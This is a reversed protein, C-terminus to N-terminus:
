YFWPNSPHDLSHDIGNQQGLSGSSALMTEAVTVNADLFAIEAQAKALQSQAIHIQQHLLSIIGVCGYVPDRIRCKAEYYLSEVADARLQVPLEEILKGINSAGYIRHVCTFKQPNNAPFYPAFVCDSPCRRRCYDYTRCPRGRVNYKGACNGGCYTYGRQLASYDIRRTTALIRRHEETDMLFEQAEEEFVRCEVLSSGNCAATSSGRLGDCDTVMTM